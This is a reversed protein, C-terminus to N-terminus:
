KGRLKHWYSDWGRGGPGNILFSSATIGIGLLAGVFGGYLLTWLAERIV